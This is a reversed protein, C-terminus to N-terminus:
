PSAEQGRYRVQARGKGGQDATGKDHLRDELNGAHTLVEDIRGGSPVLKKEQPKREEKAEENDDHVEEGVQEGTKQIWAHAQSSFGVLIM